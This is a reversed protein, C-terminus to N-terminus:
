VFIFDSSDLDSASLPEGGARLEFSLDGDALAVRVRGAGLDTITLDELSTAGWDSVDLSDSGDQYDRVLDSRTDAATFVFHDAGAGGWLQDYGDGGDLVDNGDNGYLRDAGREGSLLDDGGGGNLVDGDGGGSLSNDQQDGTINDQRNSGQVNQFGFFHQTVGKATFSGNGLADDDMNVVVGDSTRVNRRILGDLDLTDSGGNGFHVAYENVTLSVTDDGTSYEHQPTGAYLFDTADISFPKEPDMPQVYVYKSGDLTSVMAKGPAIETIVLQDISQVGWASLDILDSGDEFDAFMKLEGDAGPTYIDKGAGGHVIDSGEYSYIWDSVATAFMVDGSSTGDVRNM